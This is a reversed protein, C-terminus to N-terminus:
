KKDARISDFVRSAVNVGFKRRLGIEYVIAGDDDVLTCQAIKEAGSQEQEAGPITVICDNYRYGTAGLGSAAKLYYSAATNRFIDESPAFLILMSLFALVAGLFM